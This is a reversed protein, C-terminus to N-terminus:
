GNEEPEVPGAAEKRNMDLFHTEEKAIAQLRRRGDLCKLKSRAVDTAPM